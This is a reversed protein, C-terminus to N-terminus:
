IVGLNQYNRMPPPVNSTLWDCLPLTCYGKTGCGRYELKENQRMVFSTQYSAKPIYFHLLGKPM